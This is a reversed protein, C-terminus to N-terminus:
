PTQSAVLAEFWALTPAQLMQASPGPRCSIGFQGCNVPVGSENVVNRLGVSRAGIRMTYTNWAASVLRSDSIWSSDIETIAVMTTVHSIIECHTCWFSGGGPNPGTNFLVPRNGVDIRVRHLWALGGKHFYPDGTAGDFDVGPSPGALVLDQLIINLPRVASGKTAFVSGIMSTITPRNGQADRIGIFHRYWHHNTFISAALHYQGPHVVVRCVAKIPCKQITAELQQANHVDVCFGPLGLDSCSTVTRTGLALSEPSAPSAQMDVALVSQICGVTLAAIALIAGVPSPMCINFVTM